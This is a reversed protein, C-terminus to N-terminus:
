LKLQKHEALAVMIRDTLHRARGNHDSQIEGLTQRKQLMEHTINLAAMVAIRDIGFVKGAERIRRMQQDLFGAAATLAEVEEAPCSVQFEKELIKVSVTTTETM